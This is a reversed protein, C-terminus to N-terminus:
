PSKQQNTTAEGSRNTPPQAEKPQHNEPAMPLPPLGYDDSSATLNYTRMPQLQHPYGMPTPCPQM